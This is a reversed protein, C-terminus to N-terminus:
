ASSISVSGYAQSTLGDEDTVTLIVTYDGAQTYAHAPSSGSGTTGDGFDWSREVVHGDPDTSADTFQVTASPDGVTGYAFDPTFAANPPQTGALDLVVTAATQSRHGYRDVSWVAFCTPGRGTTYVPASTAGNLVKTADAGPEAPCSPGADAVYGALDDHAVQAWSLTVTGESQVGTVSAPPPIPNPAWHFRVKVSRSGVRDLEGQSWLTLCYDGAGGGLPDGPPTIDTQVHQGPEATVPVGLSGPKPACSDRQVRWVYGAV